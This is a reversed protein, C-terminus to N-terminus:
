VQPARGQIRSRVLTRLSSINPPKEVVVNAVSQVFARSEPTTAGGTLFVMTAAVDPHSARLATHLAAGTMGPMMLDSIVVDFREGRDLMRLAERADVTAVVDHETGLMRQLLLGILPEDDIVLVRGRAPKGCSVSHHM